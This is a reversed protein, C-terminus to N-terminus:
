NAHNSRIFIASLLFAIVYTFLVLYMAHNFRATDNISVILKGLLPQFIAGSVVVAMNNFAIATARTNHSNNEKVVTFSLAQGACAAGAIFLLIGIVVPTLNMTLIMGFAIAGMFAFAALLYAQNDIVRSIMGLIPSALALGLWMLSCLFAAHPADIHNVQTLYPVGWLSAFSSMPAWLLCAYLAIYWTQSQGLINKLNARISPTTYAVHTQHPKVYCLLKWVVLALIFGVVALLILTHRWGMYEILKSIPLQGSMAGFAALMQTIGTITSFYKSKFLDATVVLVSVFAFASGCGMLLRALSAEFISTSFSFLLTGLACILISIAIIIRPNYKDLLLGSPIQMLTYSYFYVGSMIGLGFTSITLDKMLDQSMVSPSVQIAMEFFLFFAVISYLFIPKWPSAQTQM